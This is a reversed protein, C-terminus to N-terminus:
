FEVAIEGLIYEGNEPDYSLQDKYCILKKKRLYGFVDDNTILHEREIAEYVRSKPIGASKIRLHGNEDEYVYQKTAIQMYVRTTYEHDWLGISLNDYGATFNRSEIISNIHWMANRRFEYGPDEIIKIGDTDYGVMKNKNNCLILSIVEYRVAAICHMGHQPRLYEDGNDGFTRLIQNMSSFKRSQISKGNLMDLQTKLLFRKKDHKDKIADKELYIQVIRDRLVKPLYGTTESTYVTPKKGNLGAFIRKIGYPISEHILMLDYLEFAYRKEEDDYFFTELGDLDIKVGKPFCLKVWKRNTTGNKNKDNPKLMRLIIEMIDNLGWRKCDLKVIAGIPFLNDNVLVSPYASKKDYSAVNALTTRVITNKEDFHALAGGKNGVLMDRFVDPFYGKLDGDKTMYKALHERIPTYFREKTIHALSWTAKTWDKETIMNIAEFMAKAGDDTEFMEMYTSVSSCNAIVNFNAYIVSDTIFYITAAKKENPKKKGGLKKGCVDRLSGGILYDLDNVFVLARANVRRGGYWEKKKSEVLENLITDLASVPMEDAPNLGRKLYAKNGAYDIYAVLKMKIANYRIYKFCKDNSKM